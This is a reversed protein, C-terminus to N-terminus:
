RYAIAQNPAEERLFALFLEVGRGGPILGEDMWGDM